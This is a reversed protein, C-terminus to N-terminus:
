KQLMLRVEDGIPIFIFLLLSVVFVVLCSVLAIRSVKNLKYDSETAWDRDIDDKSNFYAAAFIISLLVSAVAFLPTVDHLRDCIGIIYTEM